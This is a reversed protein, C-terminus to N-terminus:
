DSLPLLSPVYNRWRARELMASALRAGRGIEPPEQTIHYCEM